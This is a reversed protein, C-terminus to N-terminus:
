VAQLFSLKFFNFIEGLFHCYFRQFYQRLKRYFQSLLCYDNGKDEFHSM